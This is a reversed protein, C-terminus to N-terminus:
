AHPLVEPRPIPAPQFWVRRPPRHFRRDGHHGGIRGPQEPLLPLLTRVAAGAPLQDTHCPAPSLEGPLAFQEQPGKLATSLMQAFPFLIFFLIVVLAVSWVAVFLPSERRRSVQAAMLAEGEQLDHPHVPHEAREGAPLQPRRVPLRERLQLEHLGARLHLHARYAHLPHARRRDDGLHDRFLQVDLHGHAPAHHPHRERHAPVTIYAFQQAADAGDIQASEYLSPPVTQLAALYMLMSFGFGKWIATLVVSFMALGPLGLWDIHVATIGLRALLTNLFGFQADYVLRWVMGAVVGPIVWPIIIVSRGLWRLRFQRNLILATGLGVVFQFFAVLITWIFSNRIAMLADHSQFIAAFGRLGLFVPNPNSLRTDFLSLYLTYGIPVFILLLMLVIAPSTFGYGTLVDARKYRASKPREEM